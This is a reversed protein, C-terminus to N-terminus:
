LVDNCFRRFECNVCRRRSRPPDPMVERAVMERMSAVAAIVASRRRPTLTVAEAKRKLLSYVFGRRVTGGWDEELMIGYATLQQCIHRGVKRRTQKYEVPILERGGEGGIEIVLDIRGRLGLAESTVTVDFHRAGAELGYAALTRRRAAQPAREHAAIGMEMKYTTPRILPLCYTYFVVRPCYGYQKLDTVTFIVQEDQRM